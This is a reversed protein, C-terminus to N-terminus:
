GEVHDYRVAGELQDKERERYFEGPGAAYRVRRRMSFCFHRYSDTEVAIIAYGDGLVHTEQCLSSPVLLRQVM